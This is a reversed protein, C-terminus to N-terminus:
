LLIHKEITVKWENAKGDAQMKSMRAEVM